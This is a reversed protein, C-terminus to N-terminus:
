SCIAEVALKKMLSPCPDGGFLEPAAIVSCGQQGICIKFADYSKHAHCSGEKYSGCVGLPTGYSAFKISSIKEGPACWLHAVPRLPAKGSTLSLYSKLNPQWDFIESCVSNVTKKLLSIGSPDGGM